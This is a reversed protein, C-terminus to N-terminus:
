VEAFTTITMTQNHLECSEGWGFPAIEGYSYFGTLAVQDGLVDKVGEVEEEVRQKMLLKRGVCSVLIALQPSHNQMAALSQEAAAMAGDILNDVNAHMFQATTGTPVDGAFTMSQTAEDVSLITRVLHQDNPLRLSLPFLLGTAPLGSAHEGLYSKYLELASRGDLQYLINGKAETITREPGFPRWGGVSSYGVKLRDGYLGVATIMGPKVAGNGLVVTEQFDAGDGALGGTINVQEPLNRMMGRVLDSGNVQLGDSLVFVHVLDRPDLGQSLRDGATLSDEGPQLQITATRLQTHAFQVATLCISGDAVQTELIEGSTSCGIIKAAPYAQQIADLFATKKLQEPHGFLMVLQQDAESNLNAFPQLEPQWGTAETWQSQHIHM